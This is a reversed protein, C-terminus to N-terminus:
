AAPQAKTEKHGDGGLTKKFLQKARTHYIVIGEPNMFGPAASSGMRQLKQLVANIHYTTFDGEWLVPVVHCCDPLGSEERLWRGTDFLSFRKEDLGYTRQIGAGWWEGYHTGPGLGTVLAEEHEQCWQGFGYNDGKRNHPLLWRNRSGAFLVGEETIHIQANTGDIKETVVMGLAHSLRPIKDFKQFEPPTPDETTM